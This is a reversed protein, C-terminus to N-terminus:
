ALIDEDLVINSELSDKIKIVSYAIIIWLM